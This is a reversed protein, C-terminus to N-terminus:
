EFGECDVKSINIANCYPCQSDVITTYMGIVELEYVIYPKKCKKCKCKFAIEKHYLDGSIKNVITELPKKKLKVIESIVLMGILLVIPLLLIMIDIGVKM